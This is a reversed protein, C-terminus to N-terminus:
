SENKSMLILHWYDFNIACVISLDCLSICIYNNCSVIHSLHECQIFVYFLSYIIMQLVIIHLDHARYIIQSVHLLCFLSVIIFREHLTHICMEWWYIHMVVLVFSVIGGLVYTSVTKMTVAGNCLDGRCCCIDSTPQISCMENACNDMCGYLLVDKGDAYTRSKGCADGDTSTCEKQLYVVPLKYIYHAVCKSRQCEKRRWHLM